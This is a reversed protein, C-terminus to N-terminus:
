WPLDNMFKYMKSTEQECDIQIRMMTPTLKLQAKSKATANIMELSKMQKEGISQVNTLEKLAGHGDSALRM